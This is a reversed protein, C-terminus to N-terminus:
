LSEITVESIRRLAKLNLEYRIGMEKCIEKLRDQSCVIKFEDIFYHNNRKSVGSELIDHSDMYMYFRNEMESKDYDYHRIETLYECEMKGMVAYTLGKYGKYTIIDGTKVGRSEMFHKLYDEEMQKIHNETMEKLQNLKDMSEQFNEM